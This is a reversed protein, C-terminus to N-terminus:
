QGVLAANVMKDLRDMINAFAEINHAQAEQNVAKIKAAKAKAEKEKEEKKKEAAKSAKAAKASSVKSAHKESSISSAKAASVSAKHASISSARSASSASSAKEKKAEEEKEQQQQQQQKKKKAAAAAAADDDGSDDSNKQDGDDSGGEWWTIPFVGVGLPNFFQFLSTSMDLGGHSCQGDPGYSTPCADMVRATTQKIGNSITITKGCWSSQQNLDGFQPQNLAVVHEDPSLMQGCAGANGTAVHYFTAKGKFSRKELARAAKVHHRRAPAGAELSAESSAAGLTLALVLSAALTTFITSKM